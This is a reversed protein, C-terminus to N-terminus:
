LFMRLNAEAVSVVLKTFLVNCSASFSCLSLCSCRAFLRKSVSWLLNAWGFLLFFGVSLCHGQVTRMNYKVQVMTIQVMTIQVMTILASVSRSVLELRLATEGLQPYCHLVIGM